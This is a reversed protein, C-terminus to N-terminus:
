RRPPSVSAAAYVSGEGQPLPCPSPEHLAEPPSLLTTDLVRVRVRERLSLPHARAYARLHPAGIIVAAPAGDRFRTLLPPVITRCTMGIRRTAAQPKATRM